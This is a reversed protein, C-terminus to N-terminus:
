DCSQEATLVQCDLHGDQVQMLVRLVTLSQVYDDRCEVLVGRLFYCVPNGDNHVDVGFGSGLLDLEKEM